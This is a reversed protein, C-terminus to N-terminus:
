NIDKIAEKKIKKSILKLVKELSIEESPLVNKPSKEHKHHPFTKIQPYHPANDWRCILKGTKTQWHYSYKNETVTNLERVYLISNDILTAKVYLVQIDEEDVFNLIDLDKVIKSEKLLKLLQYM